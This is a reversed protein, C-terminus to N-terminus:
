GLIFGEQGNNSGEYHDDIEAGQAIRSKSAPAVTFQMLFRWVMNRFSGTTKRPMPSLPSCIRIPSATWALTTKFDLPLTVRDDYQFYQDLLKMIKDFNWIDEVKSVDFDEILRWVVDTLSSVINIVAEGRRKGIVM